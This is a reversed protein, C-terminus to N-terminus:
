GDGGHGSHQTELHWAQGHTCSHSPSAPGKGMESAAGFGSGQRSNAERRGQVAVGPNQLQLGVDWPPAMPPSSFAPLKLLRKFTM